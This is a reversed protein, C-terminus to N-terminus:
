RTCDKVVKGITLAHKPDWHHKGHLGKRKPFPNLMVWFIEDQVYRPARAPRKGVWEPYGARKAYHNWTPQIWQAVGSGFRGDARWRGRSERWYICKRIPEFRAVYHRGRYQSDPIDQPGAAAMAVFALSEFM